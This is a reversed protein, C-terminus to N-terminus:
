ILMTRQFNQKIPSLVLILSSSLPFLSGLIVHVKILTKHQQINEM